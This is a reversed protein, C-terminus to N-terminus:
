DNDNQEGQNTHEMYGKLGGIVIAMVADRRERVIDIGLLSSILLLLTTFAQQSIDLHQFWFELFIMAVLALIAVLAGASRVIRTSQKM